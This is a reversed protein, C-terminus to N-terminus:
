CYVDDRGAAVRNVLKEARQKAIGSMGAITERILEEGIERTEPSAYNQLYEKFSSLGNPACHLRIDGPKALDMFDQGTRGLRYCATCFSPIYGMSAVDRIVEDLPRHDGLSFQGSIADDEEYGGPNTKSGASIQSVGLAFTDRRMKATERTSMIIGTYPVALRLIAVIKRFDIDSVPFPPHSAIDSNTAPEMRPVSITHPGVGFKEELEFIHQMMALIEFRYDFLGFLVGIGVDDIGAEMARHLSWVRWNYDRKKGGVHVKQYTERHYTEQFIQYTGIGEAKALKFEDVTLPAVNINVRRIEGHENKVGYITRISELVYDFGRKPYSEGAVLLIRKHGQNILVETERAIHEQSLAHREIAKNTARFACYLCENACLNSIYLPAFLVLRKGYITEKVTNATQFLEALMEPDSIGTLVAVDALNLGKMEAAKALVEKIKAPEPNKNQELAEWVKAENIFDAPVNYM